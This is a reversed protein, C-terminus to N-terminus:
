SVKKQEMMRYAQDTCLEWLGEEYQIPTDPPLRLENM